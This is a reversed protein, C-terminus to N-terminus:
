EYRRRELGDDKRRVLRFQNTVRMASSNADALNATFDDDFAFGHRQFLQEYEDFPRAVVHEGHQQREAPFQDAILLGGQPAVWSLAREVISVWADDDVFHVFVYLAGVVDFMRTTNWNALDAVLFTADPNRERAQEIAVPSVDVGLYDYGNATFCDAIRGYGCGVDLVTRAPRLLMAADRLVARVQAESAINEDLSRSLNGVSRPDGALQEHRRKWYDAQDFGM